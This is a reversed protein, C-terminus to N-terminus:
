TKVLVIKVRSALAPPVENVAIVQNEKVGRDVVTKSTAPREVAFQTNHPRVARPSDLM